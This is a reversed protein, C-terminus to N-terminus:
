MSYLRNRDDFEDEPESKQFRNQYERFHMQTFRNRNPRWNGLEYENHAYFAAPDFIMPRNNGEASTATNGFWLDGHVLCPEISNGDTELPLLLRPIVIDLFKEQYEEPFNPAAPNNRRDLELLHIFGNRFFTMWSADWKNLQPIWGNCTTVHFGFMGNPSKGKRHLTALRACFTSSDLPPSEETMEVFECIYFYADHLEAFKGAAIPRPCFDPRIGYIAKSGELEGEM